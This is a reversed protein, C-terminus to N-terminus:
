SEGRLPGEFKLRENSKSRLENLVYHLLQTVRAPAHKDKIRVAEIHVSGYDYDTLVPVLNGKKIASAVLTSSLFALGQGHICFQRTVEANDTILHGEPTYEFRRGNKGLFWTPIRTDVICKHKKLNLHSKVTGFKELYDPSACIVMETNGIIYIDLKNNKSSNRKLSPARFAIDVREEIIDGLVDMLNLEIAINPHMEMFKSIIPTLIYSGFTGPSSIRILGALNQSGQQAKDEMAEMEALIKKSKDYYTSGAATLQWKRNNRTLLQTDLYEELNNLSHSVASKSLHLENAARTLQGAEVVAVFIEMRRFKDM